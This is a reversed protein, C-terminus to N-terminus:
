GLTGTWHGDPPPSGSRRLLELGGRIDSQLATTQGDDFELTILHSEEYIQGDTREPIVEIHFAVLHARLERIRKGFEDLTLVEDGHEHRYSPAFWTHLDDEPRPMTLLATLVDSWRPPRKGTM